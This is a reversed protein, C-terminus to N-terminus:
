ARQSAPAGIPGPPEMATQRAARVSAALAEDHVDEHTRYHAFTYDCLGAAAGILLPQAKYASSHPTTGVNGIVYALLWASILDVILLLNRPVAYHRRIRRLRFWVVAYVSYYLLLGVVGTEALTEGFGSHAALLSQGAERFGGLGVGFLPHAMWLEVALVMQDVRAVASADAEPMAVDKSIIGLATMFREGTVDSLLLFIGVVGGVLYVTTLLAIKQPAHRWARLRFFYFFIYVLGTVAVATRSASREIMIHTFLLPLVLFARVLWNRALAMASWACIAGILLTQAYANADGITGELRGAQLVVTEGGIFIAGAQYFVGFIAFWFFARLHKPDRAITAIMWFMATIAVTTLLRRLFYIANGPTVNVFGMTAWFLFAMMLYVELPVKSPTQIWWVIFVLGALFGVAWGLEDHIDAEREGIRGVFQLVTFVGMLLVLLLPARGFQPRLDLM